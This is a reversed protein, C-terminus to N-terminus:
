PCPVQPLRALGASTTGLGGDGQADIVSMLYFFGSGAPQPLDADVFYTDRTDDDLASLCSGYGPDPLGDGDADVLDVTDGRYLDYSLAGVVSIMSASAEGFAVGKLEAM